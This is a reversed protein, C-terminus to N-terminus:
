RFRRNKLDIVRTISSFCVKELHIRYLRASLHDKSLVLVGEPAAKLFGDDTKKLYYAFYWSVRPPPKWSVM